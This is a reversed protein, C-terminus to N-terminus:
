FRCIMTMPKLTAIVKDSDWYEYGDEILTACIYYGRLYEHILNVASDKNEFLYECSLKTHDCKFHYVTTKKKNQSLREITNM